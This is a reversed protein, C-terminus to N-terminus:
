FPWRTCNMETGYLAKPKRRNLPSLSLVSNEQSDFQSIYFIFLNLPNIRTMQLNFDGGVSLSVSGFKNEEVFDVDFYNYICQM